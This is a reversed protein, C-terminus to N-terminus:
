LESFLNYKFNLYDLQIASITKGKTELFFPRYFIICVLGSCSMILPLWYLELNNYLLPILKSVISKVFWNCAYGLGIVFPQAVENPWIFAM